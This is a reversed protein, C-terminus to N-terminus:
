GTPIAASSDYGDRFAREYPPRFVGKETVIGAV